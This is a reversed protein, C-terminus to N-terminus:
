NRIDKYLRFAVKILNYYEVPSRPMKAIRWFISPRLYFRRYAEKIKQTIYQPALSDTKIIAISQNFSDWNDTSLWGKELADDYLKSGPFPTATYFHAFTIPLSYAYRITSEITHATEGPYGLIFHGDVIIGAADALRAALRGRKLIDKGGKNAIRLINEDGFEFGFAIQWCGANKMKVFIERETVDTRSNCVWRIKKHLNRAQLADLFDLLYIKDSTMSEAWFLFDRVGFSLNYEIEDMVSAVSRKRVRRGSYVSAACFVCAFPCGRLFGILSFPRGSIPLRYNRFDIKGWDPFGLSDLDEVPPERGPNIVLTDKPGRYALGNVSELPLTNGCISIALEKCTIEPEGIIAYDVSNFEELVKEPLASVHIGIVAIKIFPLTEKLSKAFWGLDSNITPTVTSLIALAPRAKFCIDLVDNITKGEPGGDIILTEFGSKVLQTSIMALSIPPFPAGWIDLQQCRGERVWARNDPAPPNILVVTNKTEQYM